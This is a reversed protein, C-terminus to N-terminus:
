HAVQLGLQEFGLQIAVQVLEQQEAGLQEAVQVLQELRALQRQELEQM